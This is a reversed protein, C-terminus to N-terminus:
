FRDRCDPSVYAVIRKPTWDLFALPRLKKGTRIAVQAAIPANARDVTARIRVTIRSGSLCTLGNRSGLGDGPGVITAPPLGAHTLPVRAASRCATSTFGLGGPSGALGALEIQQAGVQILIQGPFVQWTGNNFTRLRTDGVLQFAPVGGQVPVPCSATRDYTGTAVATGGGFALVGAAGLAAAALAVAAIAVARWGRAVARERAEAREWLEERFGPRAPPAVLDELGPSM